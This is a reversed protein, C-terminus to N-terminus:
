LQRRKSISISNLYLYIIYIYNECQEYISIPIFIIGSILQLVNIYKPFQFDILSKM